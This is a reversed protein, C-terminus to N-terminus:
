VGSPSIWTGFVDRMIGNVEGVTAGSKLADILAPMVNETGECVNKLLTLKKEVLNNNRLKRYQELKSIQIKENGSDIKMGLNMNDTDEINTNVGVVLLDKNETDKIEKWASEHIMKQQVGSKLCNLVGGNNELELILKHSENLIKSTLEEVHYSGALPDVVDAVGTEHAIIQQTRLAIKVSDNTPLGIAEDFSNTHLSQTGGLVASLAQYSVRVANNIPQQATLTVGATQTHFRLQSSKPNKPTFRENVLNYWLQRAARFKAIEEFFDNHCGFFFSMRPAFDDIDLGAKVAEEAYFIGNALTLAVEEIATSGAERIHYGSVSITNWKPTNINCWEFLDTTLRISEKPPYVYLGRAIYEKLIDNQVTGRLSEREVGQNDATAVYLALLTTAPANITMSTSVNGLNIDAFLTEMDELTDIPVGVKGVEGMSNEDDSDMGLQTPLDFAVSLGTQGSDLLLKFRQNTEIATSFGAYQRMTWLRDKYMRSHIGRTYPPLGPLNHGEKPHGSASTSEITPIDNRSLGGRTTSRSKRDEM